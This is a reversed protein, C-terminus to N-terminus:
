SIQKTADNGQDKSCRSYCNEKVRDDKGYWQNKNGDIINDYGNENSCSEKETRTDSTGVDWDNCNANNSGQGDNFTRWM